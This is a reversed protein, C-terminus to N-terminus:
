HAKKLSEPFFHSSPGLTDCGEAIKHTDPRVAVVAVTLRAVDGWDTRLSDGESRSKLVVGFGM